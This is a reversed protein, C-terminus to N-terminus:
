IQEYGNEKKILVRIKSLDIDKDDRIMEDVGECRIEGSIPNKISTICSNIQADINECYEFILDSDKITCNILTLNKM